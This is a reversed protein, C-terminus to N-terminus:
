SEEEEAAKSLIGSGLAAIKQDLLPTTPRDQAERATEYAQRAEEIRGQRALVDGRLESVLATYNDTEVGDLTALAADFKGQDLQLRALRLRAVDRVEVPEGKDIAFEYLPEAKAAEDARYYLLAGELAALSAYPTDGFETRFREMREGVEELSLTQAQEQLSRFAQAAAEAHAQEQAQWTRWGFIAALGLVAGGVISLGNEKWWQKVRDARERDDLYVDDVM